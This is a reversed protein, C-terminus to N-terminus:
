QKTFSASRQNGEWTTIIKYLGSPMSSVDLPIENEGKLIEREFTRILQGNSNYVRITGRGEGSASVHISTFNRSPNPFISYSVLSECSPKLITSLYNRGANDTEVIRYFTNHTLNRDTFSYSGSVNPSITALQEWRNGNASKEVQYSKVDQGEAKFNITVSSGSCSSNLLVFKVPLPALSAVQVTMMFNGNAAMIQSGDFFIDTGNKGDVFSYSDVPAGSNNLRAFGGPTLLWMNHGDFAFRTGVTPYNGVVANTTTNVRTIGSPTSVWVTNGDFGINSPTAGVPIIASPSASGLSYKLLNGSSALVWLNHANDFAIDVFPVGVDLTSLVAGTTTEIKNITNHNSVWVDAGDFALLAPQDLSTFSQASRGPLSGIKYFVGVSTAWVDIGNSGFDYFYTNPEPIGTAWGIVGGTSNIEAINPCANCAAWLSTNTRTFLNWFSSYNNVQSHASLCFLLPWALIIKRM